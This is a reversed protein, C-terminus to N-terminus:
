TFKLFLVGIFLNLFFFSGLMIFSVFYLMLGRSAGFQPGKDAVTSEVAQYMIDPWGELSSVIFLTLFGNPVNDFNSDWVWWEGGAM